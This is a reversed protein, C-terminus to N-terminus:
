RAFLSPIGRQKIGELSNGYQQAATRETEPQESTDPEEKGRNSPTLKNPNGRAGPAKRDIKRQIRIQRRLNQSSATNSCFITVCVISLLTAALASLSAQSKWQSRLRGQRRPTKWNRTPADKTKM